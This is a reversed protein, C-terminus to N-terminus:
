HTIYAIFTMLDVVTDPLYQVRNLTDPQQLFSGFPHVFSHDHDFHM